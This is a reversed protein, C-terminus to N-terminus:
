GSVARARVCDFWDRGAVDAAPVILAPVLDHGFETRLMGGDLASLVDKAATENAALGGAVERHRNVQAPWRWSGASGRFRLTGRAGVRETVPRFAQGTLVFELKGDSGVSLTLSAEHGSARAVCATQTISFSWSVRVPEPPRVPPVVIPPPAVAAPPPPPPTRQCAALALVLTGAAVRRISGRIAPEASVPLHLRTM